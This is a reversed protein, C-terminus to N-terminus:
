IVLIMCMSINFMVTDIGASLGITIIAIYGM